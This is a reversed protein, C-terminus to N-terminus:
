IDNNALSDVENGLQIVLWLIQLQVELFLEEINLSSLLNQIRM